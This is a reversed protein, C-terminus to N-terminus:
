ALLVAGGWLALIGFDSILAAPSGLGQLLCALGQESALSQLHVLVHASCLSTSLVYVAVAGAPWMSLLGLAYMQLMTYAPHSCRTQACICFSTLIHVLALFSSVPDHIVHCLKVPGTVSM